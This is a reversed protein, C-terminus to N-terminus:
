DTKVLQYMAKLWDGNLFFSALVYVLLYLAGGILLRVLTGSLIQSIAAAAMVAPISCIFPVLLTGFYESATAGCNPKILFYWAPVMLVLMVIVQGLALGKIGMEAFCWLSPPIVLLLVMNWKFSLDARGVALLLSGVPNGCSRVLGWCALLVLLPASENWRSGFLLNIIDKAFIAVALYIPFNVSSTMRMTKLYVNKLFVRDNQAQAMVPLGVRSVVPNVVGAVKLSLTRPLSYFGLTAAPFLRGAILVDAQLNFSNAFNNAMVYSGFKLFRRIEGINLRLDPLWENRAFLWLLVTKMLETLLIGAVLAYVSPSVLAWVLSGLFGCFTAIVEIKSVVSFRLAKEAMIRLQMGFAICLVSTSVLILIPQLKPQNFLLVSIPYSGVMLVSMLTFGVCVNLWYLSSLENQNIDQHHIIANSVGLDTFVHVFAMVAMVMAMLGFDSPSLLRALIAMQCLQILTNGIM